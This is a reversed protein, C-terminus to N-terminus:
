ESASVLESISDLLRGIYYGLFAIMVGATIVFLWVGFSVGIFALVVGAVAFMTGIGVVLRGSLVPPIKTTETATMLWDYYGGCDFGSLLVRVPAVFRSGNRM